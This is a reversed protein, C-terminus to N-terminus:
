RAHFVGCTRDPEGLSGLEKADVMRRQPGLDMATAQMRQLNPPIPNDSPGLHLSVPGLHLAWIATAIRLVDCGVPCRLGRRRLMTM